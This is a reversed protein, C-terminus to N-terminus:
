LDRIIVEHIEADGSQNNLMDILLNHSAILTKLTAWDHFERSNEDPNKQTELTYFGKLKALSLHELKRDM